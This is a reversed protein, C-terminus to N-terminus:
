VFLAVAANVAKQLDLLEEKTILIDATAHDEDDCDLAVLRINHKGDVEFGEDELVQDSPQSIIFNNVKLQM